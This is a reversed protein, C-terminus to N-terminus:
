EAIELDTGLIENIVEVLDTASGEYHLSLLYEDADDPLGNIEVGYVDKIKDVVVPLPTQEFDIVKVIEKPSVVTAPADSAAEHGFYNNHILVGATAGLVIFAVAAAAARSRTWWRTASGKIRSLAAHTDFLGAHYHSAVFDIDKDEKM